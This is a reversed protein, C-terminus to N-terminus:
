LINNLSAFVSTKADTIHRSYADGGLVIAFAGVTAWAFGWVFQVFMWYKWADWYMNWEAKDIDDVFNVYMHDASTTLDYKATAMLVAEDYYNLEPTAIVEKLRENWGNMRALVIGSRAGPNKSAGCTFGEHGLCCDQGAAWYQIDTQVALSDAYSPDMAIPAVCFKIGNRHYATARSGDPRAGEMFVLVSGDERAGAPEEPAVNTYHRKSHYAMYDGLKALHVCTGAVGGSFIAFAVAACMFSEVALRSRFAGYSGFLFVGVFLADLIMLLYAFRHYAMMFIISVFMFIIMPTCAYRLFAFLVTFYNISLDPRVGRTRKAQAGATLGNNEKLLPETEWERDVFSPAAAKQTTM